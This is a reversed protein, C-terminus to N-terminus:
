PCVLRPFFVLFMDIVMRLEKAVDAWVFREWLLKAKVLVKESMSLWEFTRTSTTSLAEDRLMPKIDVDVGNVVSLSIVTTFIASSKESLFAIQFRVLVCTKAVFRKPAFHFSAVLCKSGTATQGM